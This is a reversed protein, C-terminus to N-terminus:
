GPYKILHQDLFREIEEEHAGEENSLKTIKEALSSDMESERMLFIGPHEIV